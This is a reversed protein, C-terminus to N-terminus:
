NWNGKIKIINGLKILYNLFTFKLASNTNLSTLQVTVTKLVVPTAKDNCLKIQGIIIRTIISYVTM